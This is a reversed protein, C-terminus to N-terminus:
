AQGGHAGFPGPLLSNQKQGHLSTPQQGPMGRVGAGRIQAHEGSPGPCKQVAPGPRQDRTIAPFVRVRQAQEQGCSMCLEGTSQM